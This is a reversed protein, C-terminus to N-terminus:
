TSCVSPPKGSCRAPKADAAAQPSNGLQVLRWAYSYDRNERSRLIKKFRM